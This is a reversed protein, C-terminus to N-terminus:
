KTSQCLICEFSTQQYIPHLQVGMLIGVILFLNWKMKFNEKVIQLLTTHLRNFIPPQYSKECRKLTDVMKKFFPSRSVNFLIRCGYFFKAIAEDVEEQPLRDVYSSTRRCYQIRTIQTEQDKKSSICGSYHGECQKPCKSM